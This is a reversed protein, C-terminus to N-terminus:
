NKTPDEVALSTFFSPGASADPRYLLTGVTNFLPQSIQTTIIARSGDPNTVVIEFTQVGSPDSVKPLDILIEAASQARLGEAPAGNVTVTADPHFGWGTLLLTRHAEASQVQESAALISPRERLCRAPQTADTPPPDRLLVLLEQGSSLEDLDAVRASGSTLLCGEADLAAVAVVAEGPGPSILRLGITFSLRPSDEQPPLAFRVTEDPQVNNVRAIAELTVAAQPLNGVKVVVDSKSCRTLLILAAALLVSRLSSRM